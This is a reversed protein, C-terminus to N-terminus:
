KNITKIPQSQILFPNPLNLRSFPLGHYKWFYENGLPFKIPPFIDAPIEKENKDFVPEGRNAKTIEDEIDMLSKELEKIKELLLEEKMKLDRDMESIMESRVEMLEKNKGALQEIANSKKKVLKAPDMENKKLPQYKGHGDLQVPENVATGTSPNIIPVKRVVMREFFNGNRDKVDIKVEKRENKGFDLYKEGWGRNKYKFTYTVNWINDKWEAGISDMLVSGPKMGHWLDSNVVNAYLQCKFLPNEKEQRKLVFKFIPIRKKPKSPFPDGASNLIYKGTRVDVTFDEEEYETSHTLTLTTSSAKRFTQLVTWRILAFRSKNRNLNIGDPNISITYEDDAHLVTRESVKVESATLNYDIENGFCYYSDPKLWGLVNGTASTIREAQGQAAITKPGDYWSDSIVSYTIAIEQSESEKEGTSKYNGTIQTIKKDIIM